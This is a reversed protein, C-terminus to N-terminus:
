QDIGLDARLRGALDPPATRGLVDGIVAVIPVEALLVDEFEGSPVSRACDATIVVLGARLRADALAERVADPQPVLTEIGALRFGAATLEDGIFVISTM